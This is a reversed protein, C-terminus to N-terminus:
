SEGKGRCHPLHRVSKKYVQTTFLVLSALRLGVRSKDSQVGNPAVSCGNFTIIEPVLFKKKKKKKKKTKMMMMM